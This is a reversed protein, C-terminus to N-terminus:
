PDVIRIGRVDITTWIVDDKTLSTTTDLSKLEDSPILFETTQDPGVLARFTKRATKKTEKVTILVTFRTVILDATSHTVHGSFSQVGSFGSFGAFGELYDKVPRENKDICFRQAQKETVLRTMVRTVCRDVALQTGPNLWEELRDCASLSLAVAALVAPLLFRNLM